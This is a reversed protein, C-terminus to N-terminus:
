RTRFVPLVSSMVALLLGFFSFTAFSYRLDFIEAIYGILPPGMLFGLYSISSVMAIAMGSPIKTHKGAISYVSPVNCAVGLGVLMFGITAVALNPFLVSIGMGVFMLAGSIQLTRQRGISQTLKDGVFRGTAMMIMFSAYGLTVLQDPSRVVDHFYVGSWDFMAGETAMSCFGVIGLSVLIKDPKIFRKQVLPTKISPLLLFNKNSFNVAGVILLCILFHASTSLQLSMSMLGIMAGTFGAVSWTGHFSSMIPRQYLEEALVGQTNISINCINGIVGFLFLAGGLQWIDTAAAIFFLNLAYLLVGVPILRHSGYRSVLNGSIPMTMLQAIPLMLLVTGLQAESLDLANKITPIRSAWSAFSLGQCFFFASVAIRSRRHHSSINEPSHVTANSM